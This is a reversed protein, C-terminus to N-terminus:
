LPLLKYVVDYRVCIVHFWWGAVSWRWRRASLDEEVEVILQWASTKEVYGIKRM